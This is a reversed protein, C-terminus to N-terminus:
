FTFVKSFHIILTLSYYIIGRPWFTVSNPLGIFNQHSNWWAKVKVFQWPSACHHLRSLRWRYHCYGMYIDTWTWCARSGTYCWTILRAFCHLILLQDQQWTPSGFSAGLDQIQRLDSTDMTGNSFHISHFM